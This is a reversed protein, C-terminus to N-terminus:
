AERVRRRFLWGQCWEQVTTWDFESARLLQRVTEVTIRAWVRKWWPPRATVVSVSLEASLEGLSVAGLVVRVPTPAGPDAVQSTM